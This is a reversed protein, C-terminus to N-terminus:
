RDCPTLTFHFLHPAGSITDYMADFDARMAKRFGWKRKPRVDFPDPRDGKALLDRAANIATLDGSAFLRDISRGALDAPDFGLVQKANASLYKIAGDPGFAGKVMDPRSQSADDGPAAEVAPATTDKMDM